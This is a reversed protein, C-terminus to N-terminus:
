ASAEKKHHPSRRTAIDPHHKRVVDYITMHSIGYRLALARVSVRGTGYSNIIEEWQEPYLVTGQMRGKSMADAINQRRTGAFLHDPNVCPPNDCKHCIDYGSPIEGHTLEYSVRHALAVRGDRRIGGYGKGDTYGTWVWCPTDMHTITPGDKNTKAWFRQELTKM